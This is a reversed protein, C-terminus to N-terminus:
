NQDYYIRNLLQIVEGFGLLLTGSFFAAVLSYLAPLWGLTSLTLAFFIAFIIGAIYTLWGLYSVLNGIPNSPIFDDSNELEEDDQEFQTSDINNRM